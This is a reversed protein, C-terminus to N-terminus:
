TNSVKSALHQKGSVKRPAKKKQFAKVKTKIQGYNVSIIHDYLKRSM